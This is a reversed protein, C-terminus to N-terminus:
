TICRLLVKRTLIKKLLTVEDDSNGDSADCFEEDLTVATDVEDYREEFWDHM